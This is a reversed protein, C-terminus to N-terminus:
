ARYGCCVEAGRVSARKTLRSLFLILLLFVISTAVLAFIAWPINEALVGLVISALLGAAGIINSTLTSSFAKKLQKMDAVEKM